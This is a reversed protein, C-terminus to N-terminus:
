KRTRMKSDSFSGQELTFETRTRHSNGKWRKNNNIQRSLNNIEAARSFLLQSANRNAARAAVGLWSVPKWLNCPVNWRAPLSDVVLTGHCAANFSASHFTWRTVFVTRIQMVSAGEVTLLQSLVKLVFLPKTDAANQASCDSTKWGEWTLWLPWKKGKERLVKLNGCFIYRGMCSLVFTIIVGVGNLTLATLLLSLLTAADLIWSM